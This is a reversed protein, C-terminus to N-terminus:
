NTLLKLAHLTKCLLLTGVFRATSPHSETRKELMKRAEPKRQEWANDVGVWGGHEAFAFRQFPRFLGKEFIIKSFPSLFASFRRTKPTGCLMKAIKSGLTPSKQSTKEFLLNKSLRTPRVSQSLPPYLVKPNKTVIPQICAREAKTQRHNQCWGAINITSDRRGDNYLKCLLRRMTQRAYTRLPV